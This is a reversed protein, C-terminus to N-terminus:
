LDPFEYLVHSQALGLSARPMDLTPVDIKDLIVAASGSNSYIVLVPQVTFQKNM